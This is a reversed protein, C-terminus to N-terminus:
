TREKAHDQDDAAILKFGSNIGETFYKMCLCASLVPYLLNPDKKFKPILFGTILWYAPSVYMDTFQQGIRKGHVFTILCNNAADILCELNKSPNKFFKSIKGFIYASLDFRGYDQKEMLGYRFAGMILRNKMYQIFEPNWPLDTQDKVREYVKQMLVEFEPSWQTQKLVELSPYNEFTQYPKGALDFWLETLFDRETRM